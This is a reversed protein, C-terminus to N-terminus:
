FDTVDVVPGGQLHFKAYFNRWDTDKRKESKKLNKMLIKDNESTTGM